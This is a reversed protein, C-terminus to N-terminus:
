IIFLRENERNGIGKNETVVGPWLFAFKIHSKYENLFTNVAANPSFVITKRSIDFHLDHWKYFSHRYNKKFTYTFLSVLESSRDQSQSIQLCFRM